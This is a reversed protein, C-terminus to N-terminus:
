SFPLIWLWNPTVEVDYKTRMLSTSTKFYLKCESFFSGYVFSSLPSILQLTLHWWLRHPAIRHERTQWLASLFPWSPPNQVPYRSPVLRDVRLEMALSRPRFYFTLWLFTQDHTVGSCATIEVFIECVRWLPSMM